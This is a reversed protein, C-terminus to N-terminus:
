RGPAQPYRPRAGENPSSAESREDSFNLTSGEIKLDHGEDATQHGEVILLDLLGIM